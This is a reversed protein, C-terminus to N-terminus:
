SKGETALWHRFNEQQLKRFELCGNISDVAHRLGVSSSPVKHEAFFKEVEDRAEASCFSGTNEVLYGGSFTTLQPEVKAWNTKVYDWALDRTNCM